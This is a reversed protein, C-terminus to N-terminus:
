IEFHFLPWGPSTFGFTLSPGRLAHQLLNPAVLLLKLPQAQLLKSQLLPEITLPSLELPLLLLFPHLLLLKCCPLCCEAHFVCDACDCRAIVEAAVPRTIKVSLRSPALSRDGLAGHLVRPLIEDFLLVSGKVISEVLANVVDYGTDYLRLDRQGSTKDSWKVVLLTTKSRSAPVIKM